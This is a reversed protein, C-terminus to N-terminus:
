RGATKMETLFRATARSQLHPAVPRGIRSVWNGPKSFSRVAFRTREPGSPELVFSAEGREPHGDLSGYAFGTREPSEEVWVVQCPIRMWAFRLVVEAGPVVRPEISEPHLGCREHLRWSMLVEAASTLPADLLIERHLHRYGVPLSDHRTAGVEPYNVKINVSRVEDAM